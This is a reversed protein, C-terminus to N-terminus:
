AAPPKPVQAGAADGNPPAAKPGGNRLEALSRHLHTAWLALLAGGIALVSELIRNAPPPVYPILQKVDTLGNSAVLYLQTERQLGAETHACGCLPLLGATALAFFACTIVLALKHRCCRRSVAAFVNSLM